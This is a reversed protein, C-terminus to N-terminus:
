RDELDACDTLDFTEDDVTLRASHLEWRGDSKYAVFRYSGRAKDGAVPFTWHASGGGQGTGTEGSQFGLFPVRIDEGLVEAASECEYLPAMVVDEYDMIKAAFRGCNSVPVMVAALIFLILLSLAGFFLGTPVETSEGSINSHIQITSPSSAPPAPPRLDLSMLAKLAQRATSFRQEVHPEVLRELYDAFRESINVFPRFQLAMREVPLDAPHRRSLLHIATAGLAYLDTAPVARGMLQEVPMYGSTGIITSGGQSDPLVSQVAGFDILAVTGDSRRILNSPKIDRHVVPPSREQLYVLIELVQRVIDRAQAETYTAGEKVLTEFDSGEVFEQALFFRENGEDDSQHFADVYRPIGPHDLHRLAQAERDFLEIAKWDDAQSLDLEKLAVEEGSRRDRALFTRGQAGRGLLHMVEFRDGILPSLDDREAEAQGRQRRHETQVELTVVRRVEEWEEDDIFGDGNRDYRLLEAPRRRLEELRRQVEQELSEDV